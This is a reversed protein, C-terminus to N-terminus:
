IRNQNNGLIQTLSGFDPMDQENDPTKSCKQCCLGYKRWIEENMEMVRDLARIKAEYNRPHNFWEFFENSFHDPMEDGSEWMRESADFFGRILIFAREEASKKSFALQVEAIVEDIMVKASKEEVAVGNM